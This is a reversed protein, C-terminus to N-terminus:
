RPVLWAWDGQKIDEASMEDFQLKQAIVFATLESM